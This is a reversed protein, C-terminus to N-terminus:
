RWLLPDNPTLPRTFRIGARGLKYWVVTGTFRRGTSIEITTDAGKRLIPVQDLGFGGGSVDRVFVRFNTGGVTMLGTQAVTRRSSRRRQPLEPLSPQNKDGICPSQGACAAQLLEILLAANLNYFEPLRHQAEGDLLQVAAIASHCVGRWASALAFQHLAVARDPGIVNADSFYRQLQRRAPELGAFYAIVASVTASSLDAETAWRRFALVLTPDHPVYKELDSQSCAAGPKRLVNVASTMTATLLAATHTDCILAEFLPHALVPDAVWTQSHDPKILAHPLM